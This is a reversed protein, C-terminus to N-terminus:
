SANSISVIYEEKATHFDTFKTGDQKKQKKEDTNFTDTFSLNAQGFAIFM